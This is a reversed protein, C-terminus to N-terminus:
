ALGVRRSWADFDLGLTATDSRLDVNSALREVTGWSSEHRPFDGLEQEEGAVTFPASSGFTVEGNTPSTWAVTFGQEDRVVVPESEAIAASFAEFSDATSPDGAEVIWVNDAGGAAVLDFPQQMGNTPEVAPDSTRFSPARWSWLALYGDGKRVFTWHESRVVEDFRDQPVYAHTYDQYGFVGWLLGNTSEDWAPQYIHIATGDHQASRPISAEGTWYGPKEDDGWTDSAPPGSRPHTTFM